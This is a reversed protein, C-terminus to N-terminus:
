FKFENFFRGIAILKFSKGKLSSSSYVNEANGNNTNVTKLNIYITYDEPLPTAFTEVITNVAQPSNIQTWTLIETSGASIGISYFVNIGALSGLGSM